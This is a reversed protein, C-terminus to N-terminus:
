RPERKRLDGDRLQEPKQQGSDFTGLHCMLHSHGKERTCRRVIAGDERTLSYDWSWDETPATHGHGWMYREM